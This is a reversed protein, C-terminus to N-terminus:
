QFIFSRGDLQLQSCGNFRIGSVVFFFPFREIKNTLSVIESAPLLTISLIHIKVNVTAPAVIGSLYKKLIRM